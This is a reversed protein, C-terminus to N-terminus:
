AIGAINPFFRLEGNTQEGYVKGSGIMNSQKEGIGYFSVLDNEKINVIHRLEGYPM